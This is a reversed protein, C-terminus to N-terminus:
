GAVWIPTWSIRLGTLGTLSRIGADDVATYSLNLSRLATLAELPRLDGVGTYSLNLEKLATLAGASSTRRNGQQM